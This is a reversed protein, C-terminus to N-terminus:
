TTGFKFPRTVKSPGGAEAFRLQEIVHLVCQTVRANPMTSNEADGVETISGDPRLTFSVSAEPGAGRFM